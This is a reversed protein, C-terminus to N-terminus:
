IIRNFRETIGDAQPPYAITRLTHVDLREWLSVIVQSTFNTGRDSLIAEPIGYTLCFDVCKEAVEEATQGKM